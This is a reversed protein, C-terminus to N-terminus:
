SHPAIQPRGPRFPTSSDYVARWIPAGSFIVVLSVGAIAWLSNTVGYNLTITAGLAELVLFSVIGLATNAVWGLSWKRARKATFRLAFDELLENGVLTNYRRRTIPVKPM